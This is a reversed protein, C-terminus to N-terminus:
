KCVFTRCHTFYLSTTLTKPPSSQSGLVRSDHADLAGVVPHAINMFACPKCVYVCDELVYFTAKLPM